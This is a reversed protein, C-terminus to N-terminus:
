LSRACPEPLCTFGWDGEWPNRGGVSKGPVGLWPQLSRPHWWRRVPVTTRVATSWRLSPCVCRQHSFRGIRVAAWGTFLVSNSNMWWFNRSIEGLGLFLPKIFSWLPATRKLLKCTPATRRANQPLMGELRPKSFGKVWVLLDWCWWRGRLEGVGIAGSIGWPMNLQMNTIPLPM